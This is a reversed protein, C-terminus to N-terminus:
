PARINLTMPMAKETVRQVLGVLRGSPFNFYGIFYPIEDAVTNQTVIAAALPVGARIM